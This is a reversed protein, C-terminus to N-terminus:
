DELGTVRTIYAFTGHGTMSSVNLDVATIWAGIYNNFGSNLVIKGKTGGVVDDYDPIASYDVVVFVTEKGDNSFTTWGSTDIQNWAYSNGDGQLAFQLGGFGDTNTDGNARVACSGRFAFIFYKSDTFLDWDLDGEDGMNFAIAKNGDTTKGLWTADNLIPIELGTKKTLYFGTGHATMTSVDLDIDTIWAGLYLDEDEFQATFGSNLVFKGKTGTIVTDYATLTSIDVVVFNIEEGDNSFSTWGDSATQHWDYDDADGQLGLQLGGFGDTNIGDKDDNLTNSGKFAFILYKSDNFLEWDLNGESGMNFAIAKDDDTTKGLFVADLNVPAILEPPDVPPEPIIEDESVLLYAETIGLLSLPQSGSGFYQVVLRLATTTDAIYDAYKKSAFARALEIKITNGEKTAGLSGVAAGSDTFIAAANWAGPGGTVGDATNADNGGWILQVGGAPQGDAIELVLYVAKQFDELKYGKDEVTKWENPSVSDDKWQYGTTAWGLQSDKNGGWTNYDGLDVRTLEGTPPPPKKGGGGGDSCSIMGFVLVFALLVLWIKKM